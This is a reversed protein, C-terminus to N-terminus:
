AARGVTRLIRARSAGSTTSSRLWAALGRYLSHRGPADVAHAPALLCRGARGPNANKRLMPAESAGGFCPLKQRVGDSGQSSLYPLRDLVTQTREELRKRICVPGNM